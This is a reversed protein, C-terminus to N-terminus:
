FKIDDEEDVKAESQRRVLEINVKAMWASALAVLRPRKAKKAKGKELAILRRELQGFLTELEDKTMNCLEIYDGHKNRWLGLRLRVDPDALFYGGAKRWPGDHYDPRYRPCVSNFQFQYVQDRYTGHALREGGCKCRPHAPCFDNLKEKCTCLYTM